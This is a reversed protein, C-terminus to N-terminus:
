EGTTLIEALLGSLKESYGPEAEGKACTSFPLVIGPAKRAEVCFEEDIFEKSLKRDKASKERGRPQLCNWM